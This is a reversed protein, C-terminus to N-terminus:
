KKEKTSELDGLRRIVESRNPIQDETTWQRCCPCRVRQPEQSADLQTSGNPAQGHRLIASPRYKEKVDRVSLEKADDLAKEPKVDGAMIAPRVEMAKSPEVERLEKVPVQKVVNLDRWIQVARFFSRRSMGIDPQGLFEELSDYGLLMWARQEHFDYLAEAVDWWAQRGRGLREKIRRELAFAASVLKDREEQTLETTGANAGEVTSM